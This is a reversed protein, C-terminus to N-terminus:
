YKTTKIFYITHLFLLSGFRYGYLLIFTQNMM